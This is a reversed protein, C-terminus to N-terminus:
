TPDKKRLDAHTHGANVNYNQQTYRSANHLDRTDALMKVTVIHMICKRNVFQYQTSPM